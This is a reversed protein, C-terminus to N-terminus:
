GLNGKVIQNCTKGPILPMSREELVGVDPGDDKSNENVGQDKKTGHAGNGEGRLSTVVNQDGHQDDDDGVASDVVVEM